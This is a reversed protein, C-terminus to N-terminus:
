DDYLCRVSIADGNKIDIVEIYDCYYRMIAGLGATAETSTDDSAWWGTYGYLDAFRKTAGNYYGAGRADFLTSNTNNNPTVWFQPNRLEDVSYANLLLWEEATPMRWGAPCLAGGTVDNYTYLLGFDLANQETNSYLSSQYAKAFPIDTEDQYKKGRVNQQYWCFGVLEIVDYTVDNIADYKDDPCPEKITITGTTEAEGCESQIEIKYNFV